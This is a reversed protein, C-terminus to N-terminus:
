SLLLREVGEMFARGLTVLVPQWLIGSNEWPTSCTCPAVPATSQWVVAEESHTMRACLFLVVLHLYQGLTGWVQWIGGGCVWVATRQKHAMRTCQLFFRVNYWPPMLKWPLGLCTEALAELSPSVHKQCGPDLSHPVLCLHSEHPLLPWGQSTQPGKPCARNAELIIRMWELPSARSFSASLYPRSPCYM